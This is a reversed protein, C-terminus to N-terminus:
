WIGLVVQYGAKKAEPLINKATDCENASYTRVIKQGTGTIGKFDLAWDSADKCTGDPKKDGLAFGLKGDAAAVIAPAAAALAAAIISFKM